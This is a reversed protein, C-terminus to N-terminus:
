SYIEFIRYFEILMVIKIKLFKSLLMFNIEKMIFNHFKIYFINNGRCRFSMHLKRAKFKEIWILVPETV